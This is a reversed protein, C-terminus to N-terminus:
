PQQIIDLCFEKFVQGDSVPSVHTSAWEFVRVCELVADSLCLAKTCKLADELDNARVLRVFNDASRRSLFSVAAIENNKLAHIMDEDLRDVLKAEYVIASSCAIGDDKLLAELDCSVDRGRLYLYHRASFDPNSKIMTLLSQANGEASHIEPFGYGAAADATQKGVCFIETSREALAKAYAHVGNASTFILGDYDDWDPLSFPVDAIESMPCLATDIGHDHYFKCDIEAQEAARTILIKSRKNSM